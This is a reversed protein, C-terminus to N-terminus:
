PFAVGDLARLLADNQEPTGITIRICDQLGPKQYHRVLIGQQELQQKLHWAAGNGRVVRCLIFNTQSDFVQLWSLARLAALTRGRESVIRAINARLTDLSDLSALAAAEAAVNVNYPQKIKWLHAALAEPLLAYGVRLGALGAWKSFTRLVVLNEHREVWTGLGAPHDTFEIYAEDVVVLLPLQLLQEIEDPPTLNGGPNNPSALFLINAETRRAAHELVPIDLSFDERRPVEVLTGGCVATDFSYMGFTPPCDIVPEGPQIFLRLLMDILEDAGAGCFIREVPQGTYRSLAARLRTHDPDPYTAYNVRTLAEQVAPAPGYPNENADLKIIQEAPIGIRGALIEPPIIPTYPELRTIDPRILSTIDPVPEERSSVM